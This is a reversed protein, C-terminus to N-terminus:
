KSKTWGRNKIWKLDEESLGDKSVQITKGDRKELYVINGM